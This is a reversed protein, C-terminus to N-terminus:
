EDFVKYLNISYLEAEIDRMKYPKPLVGRFGYERFGLMVPDNSSGSSVIAKVKSNIAKLAKITELGGLGEKVYLDLIVVDFPELSNMAQHYLKIAEFGEHSVKPDYGLRMLMSSAINRILDDDDM